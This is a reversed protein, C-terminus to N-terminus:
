TYMPLLNLSLTKVVSSPHHSKKISQYFVNSWTFQFFSISISFFFRRQSSSCYTLGCCSDLVFLSLGNVHLSWPKQIVTTLGVGHLHGELISCIKKLSQPFYNFLSYNLPIHSKLPTVSVILQASSRQRNTLYSQLTHNGTQYSCCSITFHLGIHSLDVVILIDLLSSGSHITM